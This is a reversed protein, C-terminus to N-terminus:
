HLFVEQAEWHYNCWNRGSLVVKCLM